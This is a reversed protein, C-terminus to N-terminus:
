YPRKVRLGSFVRFHKDNVTALSLGNEAATAAILCDLFGISSALRYQALWDIAQQQATQTLWLVRYLALESIVVQQERKNRCGALLEASTVISITWDTNPLSDLWRQAPAYNRLMDILISSDILYHAM